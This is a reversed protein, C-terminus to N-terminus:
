QKGDIQEDIRELHPSVMTMNRAKEEDDITSKEVHRNVVIWRPYKSKAVRRVSM